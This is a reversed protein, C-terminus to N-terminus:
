QLLLSVKNCLTCKLKNTIVRHEQLFHIKLSTFKLFKKGCTKCEHHSKNLKSNNNIIKTLTAMVNPNSKEAVNITEPDSTEPEYTCDIIIEEAIDKSITEKDSNTITIEQLFNFVKYLAM